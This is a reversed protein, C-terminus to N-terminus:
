NLSKEIGQITADCVTSPQNNTMKCIAATLTNAAGDAGQAITNNPSSLSAAIQEATKGQLLAPDYTVGSVVYKGGFDIFPIGDSPDHASLINSEQTTPTQLTTYGGDAPINTYIEVPVFAIYPSTYSSGYFSLTQTNPYVDTTSSHTVKLNTFTGFRALAVAMAWRETACYPCYEAGEYFVEPKGNSTLVSGSIPKPLSSATGKGIADFVSTAISSIDTVISAPAPSAGSQAATPTTPNPTTPSKSFKALIIIGLVIIIIVAWLKKNM